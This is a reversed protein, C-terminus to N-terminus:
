VYKEIDLEVFPYNKSFSITNSLGVHGTGVICIKM